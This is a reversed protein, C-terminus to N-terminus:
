PTFVCAVVRKQHVELGCGRPYIVEMIPRRLSATPQSPVTEVLINSRPSGAGRRRCDTTGAAGWSLNVTSRAAGIKLSSSIGAAAAENEDETANTVVLM